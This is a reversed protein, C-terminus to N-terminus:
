RTAAAPALVQRAAARVLVVQVLGAGTATLLLMALVALPGAVDAVQGLAWPPAALGVVGVLSAVANSAVHLSTVATASSGFCGCSLQRARQWAAIGTFTAYTVAIALAAPRGGVLAVALGLAVEGLGLIRAAVRGSPLRLRHLTAMASDPTRLKALGAVALLGAAVFTMAGVVPSPDM